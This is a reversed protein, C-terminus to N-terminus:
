DLTPISAEARTRNATAHPKGRQSRQQEGNTSVFPSRTAGFGALRVTIRDAVPPSAAAAAPPRARGALPPACPSPRARASSTGIWAGRHADIHAEATEDGNEDHSYGRYTQRSRSEKQLEQVNTWLHTKKAANACNSERRTIQSAAKAGEALQKADMGRDAEHIETAETDGDVPNGCTNM